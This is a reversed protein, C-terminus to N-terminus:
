ERKGGYQNKRKGGFTSGAGIKPKKDDDSIDGDDKLTGGNNISEFAQAIKCVARDVANTDPDEQSTKSAQRGRNKDRNEAIFTAQKEDYKLYKTFGILKRVQKPICRFQEANWNTKWTHETFKLGNIHTANPVENGTETKSM